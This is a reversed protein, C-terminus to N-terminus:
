EEDTSRKSPKKKLEPEPEVAPAPAPPPAHEPIYGSLSVDEWGPAKGLARQELARLVEIAAPREVTTLHSIRHDIAAIREAHMQVQQALTLPGRAM